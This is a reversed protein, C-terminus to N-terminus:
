IPFRIIKIKVFFIEIKFFLYTNLYAKHDSVITKKIM